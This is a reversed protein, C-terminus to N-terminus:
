REEGRLRAAATLALCAVGATDFRLTSRGLSVSVFGAARIAAQEAEDCGAEPGVLWQVPDSERIRPLPGGGAHAAFRVADKAPARLAETLSIPAVVLPAWAGGCQKLAERARRMAKDVHATQFRSAVTVSWNTVVPVIRTVGLETAKEVLMLFRDRDGAGVLLETRPPAAVSTTAVVRAALVQRELAVRATAVGGKGDVLRISAGEAVRRVRLHHAEEEELIVVGGAIFPGRAFATAAPGEARLTM